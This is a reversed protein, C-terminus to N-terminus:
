ASLELEQEEFDDIMVNRLDVTSSDGFSFRKDSLTDLYDIGINKENPLESFVTLRENLLTKNVDMTYSQLKLVIDKLSSVETALIEFRNNIEETLSQLIKDFVDMEVAKTDNEKENNIKGINTMFSELQILRKDVLSIVQPLTLGPQNVNSSLSSSSGPQVGPKTQASLPVTGANARRKIAAANSQSM